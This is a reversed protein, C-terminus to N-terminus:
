PVLIPQEISPSGSLRLLLRETNRGSAPDRAWIFYRGPELNAVAPSTWGPAMEPSRDKAHEYIKLLYFVQWGGVVHRADRLTTVRLKVTGGMGLNLKECHDRKTELEEAIDALPAEERGGGALASRGAIAALSEALRVLSVRYEESVGSAQNVRRLLWRGSAQIRDRERGPPLKEASAMLSTLAEELSPAQAPLYPKLVGAV